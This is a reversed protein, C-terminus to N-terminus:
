GTPLLKKQIQLTLLAADKLESFCWEYPYSIFPIMLPKIVDKKIEKHPVLLEKEVLESYLGSKKLLDYDESYVNNIQRYIEGNKKFVFGSPDRYSAAVKNSKM